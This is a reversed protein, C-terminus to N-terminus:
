FPSPGNDNDQNKQNHNDINKADEIKNKWERMMVMQEIPGMKEFEPSEVLPRRLFRFIFYTLGNAHGGSECVIM